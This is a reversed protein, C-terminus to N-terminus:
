KQAPAAPEAPAAPAAPEPTKPAETPVQVGKMKELFQQVSAKFNEKIAKTREKYENTVEQAKEPTLGADTLAKMAKAKFAEKIKAYEAKKEEKMAKFNAFVKDSTAQDVGAKSLVDKFQEAKWDRLMQWHDTAESPTVQGPDATAPMAAQPQDATPAVNPTPEEALVSFASLLAVLPLFKVLKM